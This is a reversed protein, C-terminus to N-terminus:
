TLTSGEIGKLRLKSFWSNVVAEGLHKRMVELVIEWAEELPTKEILEVKSFYPSKWPVVGQELQTIIRDTVQEYIDQKM